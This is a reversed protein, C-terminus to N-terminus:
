NEHCVMGPGISWLLEIENEIYVVDTHNTVYNDYKTKMVILMPHSWDLYNLITKLTSQVQIIPWTTTKDPKWWLSCGIWNAMITRYWKQRLIYRSSRDLWQRTQNEDCVVGLWIHGSLETKTEVNVLDICDIVDNDLRTKIVSQVRDMRDHYSLKMKSMSQM